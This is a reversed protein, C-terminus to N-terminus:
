VTRPFPALGNCGQAGVGTKTILTVPKGSSLFWNREFPSLGLNKLYEKLTELKFRDRIKKTTYLSLDEFSYPEGSQGFKWKGVDNAVYITRRYSNFSGEAAYVTFIIAGYNGVTDRTVKSPMTHPVYMVRIAPCNLKKSLVSMASVPDTGRWGNDIFATRTKPQNRTVILAHVCLLCLKM